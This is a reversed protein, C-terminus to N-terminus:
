LFPVSCFLVRCVCVQSTAYINSEVQVESLEDFLPFSFRFPFGFSQLFLSPFSFIVPSSMYM